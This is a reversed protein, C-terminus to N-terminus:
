EEIIDFPIEFAQLTAYVIALALTSADIRQNRIIATYYDQTRLGDFKIFVIEGRRLLEYAIRLASMDLATYPPCSLQDYPTTFIHEQILKDLQSYSNM